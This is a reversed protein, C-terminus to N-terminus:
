RTTSVIRRLHRLEEDVDEAVGITRAVEERLLERYRTRLRSLHSRFTDISINLGRAIEDHRPLGVGTLFPKLANFLSAKARNDFTAASEAM